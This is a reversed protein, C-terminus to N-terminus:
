TLFRAAFRPTNNTTENVPIEWNFRVHRERSGVRRGGGSWICGGPGIRAVGFWVPGGCPRIATELAM